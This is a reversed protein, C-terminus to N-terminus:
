LSQEPVVKRHGQRCWLGAEQGASGVRRGRLVARPPTRGARRGGTPGTSHALPTGPAPPSSQRAPSHPPYPHSHLQSSTQSTNTSRPSCPHPASGEPAMADALGPRPALPCVWLTCAASASPRPNPPLLSPPHNAAARPGLLILGPLTEPFSCGPVSGGAKARLRQLRCERRRGHETDAAPTAQGGSTCDLTHAVVGEGLM